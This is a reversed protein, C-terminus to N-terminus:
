GPGKVEKEILEEIERIVKPINPKTFSMQLAPIRNRNPNPPVHKHHPHSSELDSDNPHPQSDYWSLKSDDKWIEYGYWDIIGPQRDFLLRERIVLRFKRAFHIEGTSKALTVGRRILVVTSHKISPFTEKLTYLFLEYDEITHLPNKM